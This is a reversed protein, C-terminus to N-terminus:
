SVCGRAIVNLDASGNVYGMGGAAIGNLTKPFRLAGNDLAECVGKHHVTAVIALLEHSDSDDGMSKLDYTRGGM